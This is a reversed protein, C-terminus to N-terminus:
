EIMWHQATISPLNVFEERLINVYKSIGVKVESKSLNPFTTTLQGFLVESFAPDNPQSYFNRVAQLVSPLNALPLSIIAESIESDKYETVFRKETNQLAKALGNLLDKEIVPAKIEGIAKEGMVPKVIHELIAIGLNGLNPLRSNKQKNSMSYKVGQLLSM